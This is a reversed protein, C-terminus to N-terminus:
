IESLLAEIQSMYVDQSIDHKAWPISILTSHKIRKHANEARYKVSVWEETGYLIYTKCKIDKSLDDCSISKLDAMRRKGMYKKWRKKINDLDEKFWPSLSCLYQIDIIETQSSIIFSIVAGFSFWLTHVIDTEDHQNMQERCEKVYETMIKNKRTITIPIVKLNKEQFFDILFQYNEEYIQEWFWPILYLVKSM